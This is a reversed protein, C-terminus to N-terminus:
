RSWQHVPRLPGFHLIRRAPGNPLVVGDTALSGLGYRDLQGSLLGDFRHGGIGYHDGYVVVAIREEADLKSSDNLRANFGMWVLIVVVAAAALVIIRM